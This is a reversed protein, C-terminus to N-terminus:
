LSSPHGLAVSGVKIGSVTLTDQEPDSANALLNLVKATDGDFGSGALKFSTQNLSVSPALNIRDLAVTLSALSKRDDMGAGDSVQYTFVDNAIQNANIAASKSPDETYTYSGDAGLALTGYSGTLSIGGSASTSGSAVSTYDGAATTAAGVKGGGVVLVDNMSGAAGRTANM